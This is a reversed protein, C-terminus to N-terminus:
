SRLIEEYNEVFRELCFISRAKKSFLPSYSTKLVKVIKEALDNSDGVKAIEGMGTLQLPVRVGPLNSAVVPVGMIM